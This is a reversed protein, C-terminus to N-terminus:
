RYQFPWQEQCVNHGKMARHSGVHRSCLISCHSWSKDGSCYVLLVCPDSFLRWSSPGERYCRLRKKAKSVSNASLLYKDCSYICLSLPNLIIRFCWTFFDGHPSALIVTERCHKGKCILSASLFNLGLICLAHTHVCVCDWVCLWM